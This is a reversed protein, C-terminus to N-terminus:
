FLSGSFEVSVFNEESRCAENAFLKGSSVIKEWNEPKLSDLSKRTIKQQIMSFVVGANFNDGAGITSVVEIKDSPTFYSGSNTITTIGKEAHTYILINCGLSKIKEFVKEPSKLGWLLNFDEHSGRVIDALSINELLYEAELTTFTHAKRINPDFYILAKAKKAAKLYRFVPERTNENVSYFSGFLLIDNAHFDPEPPLLHEKPSEKYFQYTAENKEDLSAIAIPTKLNKYRKIRSIDVSNKQLFDIIMDGVLDDGIESVFSVNAGARALSVSSNLMTGGPSSGSAKGKRFIIDLLSSSIAYIKSPPNM